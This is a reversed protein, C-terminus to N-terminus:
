IDMTGGGRGRDQHGRGGGANVGDDDERQDVGECFFWLLLTSGSIWCYHILM